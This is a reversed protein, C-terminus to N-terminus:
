WDLSWYLEVGCDIDFTKTHIGNEIGCLSNGFATNGCDAELTYNGRWMEITKSEGPALIYEDGNPFDVECNCWIRPNELIIVGKVDCTNCSSITGLTILLIFIKSYFSMKM